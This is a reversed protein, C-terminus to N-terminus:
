DRASENNGKKLADYYAKYRYLTRRSSEVKSEIEVMSLGQEYLSVFVDYSEQWQANNKKRGANKKKRLEAIERDKEEIVSELREIEKLAEELNMEKEMAQTM